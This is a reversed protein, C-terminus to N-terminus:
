AGGYDITVDGDEVVLEEPHAVVIAKESFCEGFRKDTVRVAQQTGNSLFGASNHLIFVRGEEAEEVGYILVLHGGKTEPAPGFLDRISASVSAIVHRGLHVHEAIELTSMGRADKPMFGFVDAQHQGYERWARFGFEERIYTALDHHYAGIIKGDVRRFVQYEDFATRYMEELPPVERGLGLLIMRVCCIGCWNWEPDDMNENVRNKIREEVEEPTKFQSVFVPKPLSKGM